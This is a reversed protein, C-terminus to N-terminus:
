SRSGAPRAPDTKGRLSRAPLGYIAKIGLMSCIGICAGRPVSLIDSITVRHSASGRAPNAAMAIGNSASQDLKQAGVVKHQNRPNFCNERFDADRGEDGVPM